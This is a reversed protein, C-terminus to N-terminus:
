SLALEEKIGMDENLQASSSIERSLGGVVDLLFLETCFDMKLM